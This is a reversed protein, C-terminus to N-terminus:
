LPRSRRSRSEGAPWSSVAPAASRRASRLPGSTRGRDLVRVTGWNVLAKLEAAMEGSFSSTKAPFDVVLYDVPGLEDLESDSM